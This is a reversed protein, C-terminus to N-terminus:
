GPGPGSGGDEESEEPPLNRARVASVVIAALVALVPILYLVAHYWDGVHALLLAGVPDPM